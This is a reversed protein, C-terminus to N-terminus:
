DCLSRLYLLQYNIKIELLEYHKYHYFALHTVITFSLLHVPIFGKVNKAFTDSIAVAMIAVMPLLRGKSESSDLSVNKFFFWIQYYIMWLHKAKPIWTTLSYHLILFSTNCFICVTEFILNMWKPHLINFFSLMEFCSFDFPLLFSHCDINFHIYM